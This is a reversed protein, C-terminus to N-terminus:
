VSSNGATCAPTGLTYTAPLMYTYGDISHRTVITTKVWQVRPQGTRPAAAVVKSEATLIKYYEEPYDCPFNSTGPTQKEYQASRDKKLDSYVSDKIMDVNLSARCLSSYETLEAIKFLPMKVTGMSAGAVPMSVFKCEACFAYVDAPM